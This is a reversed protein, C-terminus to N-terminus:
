CFIAFPHFKMNVIAFLKCVAVKDDLYVAWVPKIPRWRFHVDAHCSCRNGIHSWHEGFHTHYLSDRWELLLTHLVPHRAHKMTCLVVENTHITIVGYHWTWGMCSSLSLLENQICCMFSSLKNYCVQLLHEVHQRLSKSVVTDSGRGFADTSDVYM